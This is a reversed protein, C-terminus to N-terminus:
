RGPRLESIVEESLSGRVRWDPHSGERGPSCNQRQIRVKQISSDGGAARVLGDQAWTRLVFGPVCCPDWLCSHAPM